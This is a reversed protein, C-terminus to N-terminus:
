YTLNNHKRLFVLLLVVEDQVKHCRWPSQYLLTKAITWCCDGFEDCTGADCRCYFPQKFYDINQPRCLNRNTRGATIKLSEHGEDDDCCKERIDGCSRLFHDASDIRGRVPLVGDPQMAQLEEEYPRVVSYESETPIVIDKPILIPYKTVEELKETKANNLVDPICKVLLIFSLFIGISILITVTQKQLKQM